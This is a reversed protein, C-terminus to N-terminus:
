HYSLLMGSVLTIHVVVDVEKAFFDSANFTMPSFM